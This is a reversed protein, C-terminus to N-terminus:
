VMTKKCLNCIPIYEYLNCGNGEIIGEHDNETCISQNTKINNCFCCPGFGKFNSTIVIDNYVVRKTIKKFFQFLSVNIYLCQKARTMAVYLTNYADENNMPFDDFLVVNDFESGKSQHATTIVINPADESQKNYADTWMEKLREGYTNYLRIRDKWANDNVNTFHEYADSLCIYSKLKSNTIKEFDGIHINHLDSVILIEKEFNITKGYLGFSLQLECIKFMLRYVNANYRCLIVTGNPLAYLSETSMHFVRMDTNKEKRSYSFGKPTKYAQKLYKNTYHMLDYGMRFSVSLQFCKCIIKLPTDNNTINTIYHFPDNVHRFGYIKQYVDGVFLRTAHHQQTLIHLICDTCDQVEDLMIVDYERLDPLSKQYQKLYADHTTKLTKTHFMKEWLTDVMKDTSKDLTDSSCYIDFEKSVHKAIEIDISNLGLAEQIDNLKLTGISLSRTPDISNLALSHITMVNVNMLEQFKSKSEDALAKNYALYLCKSKNWKKAYHYLMTTKGTGAFAQVVILQKSPRQCVVRRQENTINMNNPMIQNIFGHERKVLENLIVDYLGNNKYSKKSVCVKSWYEINDYSMLSKQYQFMSHIPVDEQKNSERKSLAYQLWPYVEKSMKNMHNNVIAMRAIQRGPLLNFIVRLVDDPLEDM